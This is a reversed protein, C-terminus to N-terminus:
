ALGDAEGVLGVEGELVGEAELFVDGAGLFVGPVIGLAVQHSDIFFPTHHRSITLCGTPYAAAALLQLGIALLDAIVHQLSLLFVHDLMPVQPIM